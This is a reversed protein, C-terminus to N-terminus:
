NNFPAKERCITELNLLKKIKPFPIAKKFPYLLNVILRLWWIYVIDMNCYYKKFLFNRELFPQINSHNSITRYGDTVYRYDGSSLYYHNMTFILGFMPYHKNLYNASLRIASYKVIGNDALVNLAYAIMCNSNREYVAWVDLHPSKRINAEWVVRSKPNSTCQRYRTRAELYVRYGGDEILQFNSIKRIECDRLCRRIQNRSKSPYDAIDLDTDQVVEWFNLPKESYRNTINQILWVRPQHLLM